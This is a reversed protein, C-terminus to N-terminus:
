TYKGSEAAAPCSEALSKRTSTRPGGVVQAFLVCTLVIVKMWTRAQVNIPPDVPLELDRSPHLLLNLEACCLHHLSPFHLPLAVYTKATTLLNYM